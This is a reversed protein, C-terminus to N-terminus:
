DINDSNSAIQQLFEINEGVFSTVSDNTYVQTPRAILSSEALCARRFVLEM